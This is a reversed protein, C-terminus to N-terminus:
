EEPEPVVGDLCSSVKVIDVGLKLNFSLDYM